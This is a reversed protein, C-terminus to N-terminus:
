EFCLQIDYYKTPTSLQGSSWDIFIVTLAICQGPHEAYIINNNCVDSKKDWHKFCLFNPSSERLFALLWLNKEGQTCHKQTEMNGGATHGVRKRCISIQDKVHACIQDMGYVRIPTLRRLCTQVLTSESPCFMNGDRWPSSGLTKPNSNRSELWQAVDRM